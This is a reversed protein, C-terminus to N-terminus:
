AARAASDAERELMTQLLALYSQLGDVGPRWAGQPLHRSFRQWQRGLHAEAGTAQPAAGRLTVSPNVWFMDLQTDPYGFPILLLLEIRHPEFSAPLQFGHLVVAVQGSTHELRHDPWHEALYATDREPLV